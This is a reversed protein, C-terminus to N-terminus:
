ETAVAVPFWFQVVTSLVDVKAPQPTFASASTAWAVTAAWILAQDALKSLTGSSRIKTAVAFVPEERTHPSWFVLLLTKARFAVSPTGCHTNLRFQVSFTSAM